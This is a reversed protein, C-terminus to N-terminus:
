KQMSDLLLTFKLGRGQVPLEQSIGILIMIFQLFSMYEGEVPPQAAAAAKVKKTPSRYQHAAQSLTLSTLIDKAIDLLKAHSCLNPYVDFGNLLHFLDDVSLMHNSYHAHMDELATLHKMGNPGHPAKTPSHAPVHAPPHAAHANLAYRNSSFHVFIEWLAISNIHLLPMLDKLVGGGDTHTSALVARRLDSLWKRSPVVEEPVAEEATIQASDETITALQAPNSGYFSNKFKRSPTSPEKPHVVDFSFVSPTHALQQQYNTHNTIIAEFMHVRDHVSKGRVLSPSPPSQPLVPAVEVIPTSAASSSYPHVDEEDTLNSLEAEEETAEVEVDKTLYAKKYHKWRYFCKKRSYNCHYEYIRNLTGLFVQLPFHADNYVFQKRPNPTSPTTMAASPAPLPPSSPSNIQQILDDGHSFSGKKAFNKSPSPRKAPSTPKSPPRPPSIVKAPSAAPAPALVPYRRSHYRLFAYEMDRAPKQELERMKARYSHGPDPSKTPVPSKKPSRAGWEPSKSPSSVPPKPIQQRDPSRAAERSPSKSPRDPSKVAKQRPETQCSKDNINGMLVKTEYKLQAELGQLLIALRKAKDTNKAKATVWSQYVYLYKKLMASTTLDAPLDGHHSLEFLMNYTDYQLPQPPQSLMEYYDASNTLLLGATQSLQLLYIVLLSHNHLCALHLITQNQANCVFVDVKVVGILYEVVFQHCGATALLVPTQHSSNIQNFLELKGATYGDNSSTMSSPTIQADNLYLCVDDICVSYDARVYEYLVHLVQLHGAQAAIHAINSNSPDTLYINMKFYLLVKLVISLNNAAAVHLLTHRNVNILKNLPLTQFALLRFLQGARQMDTLASSDSCLAWVSDVIAYIDKALASPGSPPAPAPTSTNDSFAVRPPSRRPQFFSEQGTIGVVVGTGVSDPTEARHHERHELEHLIEEEEAKFEEEQSQIHKMLIKSTNKRCYKLLNRGSTDIVTADAGQKLLLDACADKGEYCAHSLATCGNNDAAKLLSQQINPPQSSLLLKLIHERGFRCPTLRRPLPPAPPTPSRAAIMVATQGANNLLTVSAKRSLLLECLAYYGHWCVFHLPTLGDKTQCNIDVDARKLLLRM